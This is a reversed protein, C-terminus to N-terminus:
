TKPEPENTVTKTTVTFLDSVTVDFGQSNAFNLIKNVSDLYVVNCSKKFFSLLLKYDVGSLRAIESLSLRPRGSQFQLKTLLAFMDIKVAKTPSPEIGVSEIKRSKRHRFDGAVPANSNKLDPNLEKYHNIWKTELAAADETRCEDVINIDPTKDRSLLERIWKKKPSNGHASEIIHQALRVHKNITQGVYMVKGTDPCNLTYIYVTRM